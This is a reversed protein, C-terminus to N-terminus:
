ATLNLGVTIEVHAKARTLTEFNQRDTGMPPYVRYGGSPMARIIWGTQGYRWYGRSYARDKEWKAARLM